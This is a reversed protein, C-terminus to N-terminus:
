REVKRVIPVQDVLATVEVLDGAVVEGEATSTWLDGELDVVPDGDRMRTVEGRLGVLRDVNTREQLPSLRESIREGYRVALGVCAMMGIAALPVRVTWAVGAEALIREILLAIGAGSLMGASPIFVDLVILAVAVGAFLALQEM